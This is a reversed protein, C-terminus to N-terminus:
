RVELSHTPLQKTVRWLKNQFYIAEGLSQYERPSIEIIISAYEVGRKTNPGFGIPEIGVEMTGEVVELLKIPEQPDDENEGELLYVAKVDEDIKSHAEAIRRAALLKAEKM